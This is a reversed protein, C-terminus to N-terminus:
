YAWNFGLRLGQLWFDTDRFAFEPLANGSLTGGNLQTINVRRDIQDGALCMRSWYIFSYGATLQINERWDYGVTMMVEPVYVFENREYNGINTPLALLGGATTTPSGGSPTVTNSGNIMVQQNMNGLSIKGLAKFHVNGRHFNASVGLSGGHFTNRAEFQDMADVTTGFSTSGTDTVTSSSTVDILDDLRTVHYGMLFEAEFGRGDWAPRRLFLEGTMLDNRALATISGDLTSPDALPIASEFGSGTTANLFPRALFRDSSGIDFTATESFQPSSSEVAMLRVGLGVDGDVGMWRGATIQGGNRAENGLNGGFLTETTPAGLVGGDASDSTTVLAPVSRPKSWTMLYEVSGFSYGAEWSRQMDCTTCGCTRRHNWLVPIWSKANAESAETALIGTDLNAPAQSLGSAPLLCTHLLAVLLLLHHFKM